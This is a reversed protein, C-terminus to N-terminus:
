GPRIGQQSTIKVEGTIYFAQELLLANRDAIAVRLVLCSRQSSAYCM